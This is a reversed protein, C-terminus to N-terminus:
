PSEPELDRIEYDMRTILWKEENSFEADAHAIARALSLLQQCNEDELAGNRLFLDIAKQYAKQSSYNNAMARMYTTMAQNVSNVADLGLTRTLENQLCNTECRQVQGDAKSVAYGLYGLADYYYRNSMM